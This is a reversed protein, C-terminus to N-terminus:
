KGAQTRIVLAAVVTAVGLCLLAFAGAMMAADGPLMACAAPGDDYPCTRWPQFVFLVTVCLGVIAAAVGIRIMWKAAM